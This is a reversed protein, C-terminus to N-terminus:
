KIVKEKRLQDIIDDESKSTFGPLNSKGSIGFEETDSYYWVRYNGYNIFFSKRSAAIPVSKGIKDRIELLKFYDSFASKLSDPMTVDLAQSNHHFFIIGKKSSDKNTAELQYGNGFDYSSREKSVKDIIDSYETKGVPLDTSHSIKGSEEIKNVKGLGVRAM